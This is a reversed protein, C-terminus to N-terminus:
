PEEETLIVPARVPDDIQQTVHPGSHGAGRICGHPKSILHRPKKVYDCFIFTNGNDIEEHGQPRDEPYHEPDFIAPRIDPPPSGLADLEATLARLKGFREGFDQAMKQKFRTFEDHVM